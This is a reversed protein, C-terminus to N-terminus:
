KLQAWKQSISTSHLIGIEGKVGHFQSRNSLRKQLQHVAQLHRKGYVEENSNKLIPDSEHDNGHPCDHYDHDHVRDRARPDNGHDEIFASM